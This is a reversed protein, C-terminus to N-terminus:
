GSATEREAAKGTEVCCDCLVITGDFKWTGLRNKEIPKLCEQLFGVVGILDESLQKAKEHIETIKNRMQRIYRIVSNRTLEKLSIYRAIYRFESENDFM